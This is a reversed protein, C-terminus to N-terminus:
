RLYNWLWAAINQTPAKKTTHGCEDCYYLWKNIIAFPDKFLIPHKNGCLCPRPNLTKM